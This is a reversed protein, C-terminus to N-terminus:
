ASKEPIIAERSVIGAWFGSMAAEALEQKNPVDKIMEVAKNQKNETTNEM